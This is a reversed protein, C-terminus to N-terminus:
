EITEWTVWAVGSLTINGEKIYNYRGTVTVDQSLTKEVKKKNRRRVVAECGPCEVRELVDYKVTAGARFTVQWDITAIVINYVVKGKFHYRKQGAGALDGLLDKVRREVENHMAGVLSIGHGFLAGFVESANQLANVNTSYTYQETTETKTVDKTMDIDDITMNSLFPYVTCEGEEYPTLNEGALLNSALPGTLEFDADGFPPPLGIDNTPDYPTESEIPETQAEIRKKESSRTVRRPVHLGVSDNCALPAEWAYDFLSSWPSAAPDPTTWRGTAVDYVRNWCHYQGLKQLDAALERRGASPTTWSWAAEIGASGAFSWTPIRNAGVPNRPAACPKARRRTGDTDALLTSM